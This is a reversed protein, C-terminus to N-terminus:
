LLAEAAKDYATPLWEDVLAEGTGGALDFAGLTILLDGDRVFAIFFEAADSPNEPDSLGVQYLASEDGLQEVDLEVVTADLGGTQTGNCEDLQQRVLEVTEEGRGEPVFGLSEALLPGADPDQALQIEANPLSEEPLGLLETLKVGCLNDDEDDEEAPLESWGEGVDETTLLAPRLEEETPLDSTDPPVTVDITDNIDDALEEDTAATTTTEDDAETSTDDDDGGCAAVALLLAVLLALWRRPSMTPPNM